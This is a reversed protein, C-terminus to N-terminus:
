PKEKVIGKSECQELENRRRKRMKIVHPTLLFQSILWYPLFSLIMDKPSGQPTIWIGCFAILIYFIFLFVDTRSTELIAPSPQPIDNMSKYASTVIHFIAFLLWLCMFAQHAYGMWSVTDKLLFVFFFFQFVLWFSILEVSHIWKSKAM